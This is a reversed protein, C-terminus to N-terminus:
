VYFQWNGAPALDRMLAHTEGGRLGACYVVSAAAGPPRFLSIDGFPNIRFGPAPQVVAGTPIAPPPGALAPPDPIITRPQPGWAAGSKQFRYIALTGADTLLAVEVNSADIVLGSIRTHAGVLDQPQGVSAPPAWGTGNIWFTLRLRLDSGVGVVLIQDTDPAVAALAGGALFSAASELRQVPFVPWTATMGQNWYATTLLGQRDMFYTDISFTGRTSVALPSFPHLLEASVAVGAEWNNAGQKRKVYLKDDAGVMFLTSETPLRSVGALARIRRLAPVTGQIPDIATWASAASLSGLGVGGGNLVTCLLVDTGFAFMTSPADAELTAAPAMPIVTAGGVALSQLRAGPPVPPPGAARPVFNRAVVLAVGARSTVTLRPETEPFSPDRVFASDFDFTNQAWWGPIRRAIASGAAPVDGTYSRFQRGISWVIFAQGGRPTAMYAKLPRLTSDVTLPDAAPDFPPQPTTTTATEFWVDWLFLDKRSLLMTNLPLGHGYLGPRYSFLNPDPRSMEQFIGNYYDILDQSLPTTTSDENDIFVLAGAFNAGLATLTTRLHLGHLTGRATNVGAAPAPHGGGVSYGVYFLATGWGQSVLTALQGMWNRSVQMSSSTFQTAPSGALANGTVYGGAFRMNSNDIFTEMWGPAVAPHRGLTTPFNMRDIGIWRSVINAPPQVAAAAAIVAPRQGGQQRQQNQQRQQRHQRPARQAVPSRIAHHPLPWAEEIQLPPQVQPIPDDGM